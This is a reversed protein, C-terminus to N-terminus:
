LLIINYKPPQFAIERQRETERKIGRTNTRHTNSIPVFQCLGRARNESCHRKKPALVQRAFFSPTFLWLPYNNKQPCFFFPGLDGCDGYKSFLNWGLNSQFNRLNEEEGEGVKLWIQSLERTCSQWGVRRSSLNSLALVHDGLPEKIKIIAM